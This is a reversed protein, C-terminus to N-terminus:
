RPLPANAAAASRQWRVVTIERAVHGGRFLVSRWDVDRRLGPFTPQADEFRDDTVYLITSAQSWTARPVWREFDAPAPGDCGVLVSRPLAAHLQACVTWHPGVVIAPQQDGHAQTEGSFGAATEALARRVLPIGKDRANLENANDYRAVYKDGHLRPALPTLVYVHALAVLAAGSAVAARQFARSFTEVFREWHRALHVPLALFLPAIWHPEAARSLLCLLVLPLAALTTAALMWAVADERRRTWLDRAVRVAGFLVVPGVYVLQGGLLALLNRVSPVLPVDVLRHRLMPMGRSWEDSVVPSALMLAVILAAWPAVTRLHPRAARSAFALVLGAFLLAGSVKATFALGTAVGVPV